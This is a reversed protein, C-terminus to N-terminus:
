NAVSDQGEKAQQGYGYSYAYYSKYYYTYDASRMNAQNILVGFIKAGTNMLTRKVRQAMVKPTVEARVVLVVGDVMPSLILADTVALVPPSDIVIFEFFEDVLHLMQHMRASALLEAPNPPIRGAPITFLNPVNTETILSSIEVNAALFASIGQK